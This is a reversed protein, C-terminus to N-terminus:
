RPRAPTIKTADHNNRQHWGERSLVFLGTRQTIPTKTSNDGWCAQRNLEQLIHFIIIQDSAKLVAGGLLCVLWSADKELTYSPPM